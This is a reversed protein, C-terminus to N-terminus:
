NLYFRFPCALWSRLGTVAVRTPPKERQPRLQWARTCRIIRDHQEPAQFLFAVRAPLEEDAWHLLLRSPRLPEGTVSTKGFFLDLVGAKERSFALTQLGYCDRALRAANTKPGLRRRLSEPLFADGIVADPVCGDNLGAVLLHPANEWGLELWGQLELAGEPKDDTRMSEAFLQLALERWEETALEGFREEALVRARVGDMGAVARSEFRLDADVKM